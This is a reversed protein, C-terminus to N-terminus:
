SQNPVHLFETAPWPGSVIMSAGEVPSLARLRQEFEPVQERRILAYCRLGGSARRQRWEVVMEQTSAQARDAHERLRREERALGELYEKGSQPGAPKPGPPIRLEMQVMGQLRRLDPVFEAAHHVLFDRVEAELALLTPFRFPAVAARDLIERLVAHFQLADDRFREADAAPEEVMSYFCRLGCEALSEVTAGRVGPSLQGVSTGAETMGYLLLPM